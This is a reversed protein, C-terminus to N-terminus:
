QYRQKPSYRNKFGLHISQDADYSNGLSRWLVVLCMLVSVKPVNNACLKDMFESADPGKVELKGFPTLDVVSVRNYVM